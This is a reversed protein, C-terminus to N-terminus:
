SGRKEPEAEEVIITSNMEMPVIEQTAATMIGYMCGIIAIFGAFYSVRRM